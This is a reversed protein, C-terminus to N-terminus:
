LKYFYIAVRELLSYSVNITNLSWFVDADRGEPLRMRSDAYPDYYTFNGKAKVQLFESCCIKSVVEEDEERKVAKIAEEDRTFPCKYYVLIIFIICIILGIGNILSFSTTYITYIYYFLLGIFLCLLTITTENIVKDIFGGVNSRVDHEPQTKGPSFGRVISISYLQGDYIIFRINDVTKSRSKLQNRNFDNDTCGTIDDDTILLWKNITGLFTRYQVHSINTKVLSKLKELENEMSALEQLFNEPMKHLQVQKGKNQKIFAENCAICLKYQRIKNAQVFAELILFNNTGIDFVNTNKLFLLIKYTQAVHDFPMVFKGNILASINEYAVSLADDGGSLLKNVSDISTIGRKKKLNKRLAILWYKHLYICVGFVLHMLMETFYNLFSSNVCKNTQNDCPTYFCM